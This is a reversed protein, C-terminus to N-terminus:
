LGNLHFKISLACMFCQLSGSLCMVSFIVEKIPNAPIQVKLLILFIVSVQRLSSFVCCNGLNQTIYTIHKLLEGIFKKM